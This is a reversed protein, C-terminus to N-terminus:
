TTCCLMKYCIGTEVSALIPHRFIRFGAALIGFTNEIIRSTRYIRYNSIVKELDLHFALYPKVLNTRMPFADDGVSVFPM